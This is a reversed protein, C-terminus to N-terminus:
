RKWFPRTRSSTPTVGALSQLTDITAQWVRDLAATDVPVSSLSRALERLLRLSPERVGDQRFGDLRGTIEVAVDVLLQIRQLFPQKAADRLRALVGDAFARLSAPVLM